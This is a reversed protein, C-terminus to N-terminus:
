VLYKHEIMSVDIRYKFSWIKADYDHIVWLDIVTVDPDLCSAFALTVNVDLLKEWFGVHPGHMWRFSEDMTDSGFFFFEVEVLGTKSIVIVGTCNLVTTCQHIFTAVTCEVVYSLDHEVSPPSM